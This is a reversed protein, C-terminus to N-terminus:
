HKQKGTLCRGVYRHLGVSDPGAVPITHGAHQELPRARLARRSLVALEGEFAVCSAREGADKVLDAGVM